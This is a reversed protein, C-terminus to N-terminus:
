PVPTAQQSIDAENVPLREIEGLVYNLTNALDRREDLTLTSGDGYLRRSIERLKRFMHEECLYAVPVPKEM